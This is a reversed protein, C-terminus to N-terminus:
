LKHPTAVTVAPCAKRLYAACATIAEDSSDRVHSWDSAPYGDVPDVDAKSLKGMGDCLLRATLDAEPTLTVLRKTPSLCAVVMAWDAEKSTNKSM